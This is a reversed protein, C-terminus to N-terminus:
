WFSDFEAVSGSNKEADSLQPQLSLPWTASVLVSLEKTM